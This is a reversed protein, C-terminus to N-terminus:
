WKVYIDSMKTQLITTDKMAVDVTNWVIVRLEYKEPVEPSIDIAPPICDSEYIEVWLQLKGQTIGPRDKRFLYRTEVHEPVFQVGEIVQDFQKLVSLALREHLNESLSLRTSDTYEREGIWISNETFRPEPLNYEECLDLLIKLPTKSYRWMNYGFMNYEEALGFFARHKTFMRDELDILTEGILDDTCESFDRDRLSVKLIHDQPIFGKVEFCRGFYPNVQNKVFNDRDMIKTKGFEICIYADSDSNVDRSRLNIGRVVYIRAVISVERSHKVVQQYRRQPIGQEIDMNKTVDEEVQTGYNLFRSMTSKIFSKAFNLGVGEVKEDNVIKSAKKESLDGLKVSNEKHTTWLQNKRFFQQTNSIVTIGILKASKERRHKLVIPPWYSLKEPLYVECSKVCDIFNCSRGVIRSCSGMSLTSNGFELFIQSHNKNIKDMLRLGFCTFILHFKEIAVDVVKPVPSEVKVLKEGDEKSTEELDVSLLLQAVTIGNRVVPIWKLKSKSQPSDKLSVRPITYGLGLFDDNKKDGHFLKFLLIPPNQVYSDGECNLTINEFSVVENWNPVLSQHHITSKGHIGSFFIDVFTDYLSSRNLGPEIKAQYLYITCRFTTKVPSEIFNFSSTPSYTWDKPWWETDEKEGGMWLIVDGHGSICGCYTEEHRCQSNKFIVGHRKRCLYGGGYKQNLYVIDKLDVRHVGFERGQDDELKIMLDPWKTVGMKAINHLNQLLKDLFKAVLTLDINERAHKMEDILKELSAVIQARFNVHWKMLTEGDDAVSLVKKLSKLSVETDELFEM